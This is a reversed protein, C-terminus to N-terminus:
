NDYGSGSVRILETEGIPIKTGGLHPQLREIEKEYCKPGVSILSDTGGLKGSWSETQRNGFNTEGLQRTPGVLFGLPWM